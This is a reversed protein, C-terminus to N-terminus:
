VPWHYNQGELIWPIRLMIPAVFPSIVRPEHQLHELVHLRSAHLRIDDGAAAQDTGQLAAALPLQCLLEELLHATRTGMGVAARAMQLM